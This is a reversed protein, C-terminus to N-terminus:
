AQDIECHVLSLRGFNALERIVSSTVVACVGFVLVSFPACAIRVTGTCYTCLVCNVTHLYYIKLEVIGYDLISYFTYLLQVRTRYTYPLDDCKM